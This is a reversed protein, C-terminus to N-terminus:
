TIMLEEYICARGNGLCFADFAKRRSNGYDPVEGNQLASDCLYLIDRQEHRLSASLDAVLFMNGPKVYGYCCNGNTATLNMTMASGGETLDYACLIMIEAKKDVAYIGTELRM